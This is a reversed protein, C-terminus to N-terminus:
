FIASKYQVTCAINNFISYTFIKNKESRSFSFIRMCSFLGRAAVVSCQFYIEVIHTVNEQLIACTTTMVAACRLVVKHPPNKECHGKTKLQYCPKVSFVTFVSRFNPGGWSSM